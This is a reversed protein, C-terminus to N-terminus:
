MFSYLFVDDNFFADISDHPIDFVVDQFASEISTNNEVTKQAKEVPIESVVSEVKRPKTTTVARRKKSRFIPIDDDSDENKQRRLLLAWRNKLSASSRGTFYRIIRSWKNGYKKQLKILHEDEEKTWEERNVSPDLCVLWRERCQKGTRGNLFSAIHNWNKAGFKMVVSKLVVDEEPTWKNKKHGKLSVTQQLDQIPETEM